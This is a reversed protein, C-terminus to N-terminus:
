SDPQYDEYSKEEVLVSGMLENMKRKLAARRDNTVYVARALRIFEDDFAQAAEKRRIDDEIGWLEENVAKLQDQVSGVEPNSRDFGDWVKSLEHHERGVNALKSADTIREMKIALITIKDVLEGISVPVLPLSM